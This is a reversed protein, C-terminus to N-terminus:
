VVKSSNAMHWCEQVALKVILKIEINHVLKVNCFSVYTHNTQTLTTTTFM